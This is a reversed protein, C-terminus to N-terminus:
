LPALEATGSMVEREATLSARCNELATEASGTPAARDGAPRQGGDGRGGAREAALWAEGEALLQRVEGLLQAAPAETSQLAEIRELRRIVRRAEDM